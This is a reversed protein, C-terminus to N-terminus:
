TDEDETDGCIELGKGERSTADESRRVTKLTSLHLVRGVVAEAKRRTVKHLDSTRGDLGPEDASSPKMDRSRHKHCGMMECTKTSGPDDGLSKACTEELARGALQALV